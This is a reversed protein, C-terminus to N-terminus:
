LDRKNKDAILLNDVFESRNYTQSNLYQLAESSLKLYITESRTTKPRGAGARAGGRHEEKKKPKKKQKVQSKTNKLM